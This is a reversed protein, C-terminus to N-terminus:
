HTSAAVRELQPAIPGAAALFERAIGLATAEDNAEISLMVVAAARRGTILKGTVQALKMGLKSTLFRGDVWYWSWVFRRTDGRAIRRLNTNLAAGDVVLMSGTDSIRRWKEDQVENSFSLLESGKRQDSYFVVHMDVNRDIGATYRQQKEAAPNQYTPQWSATPEIARWPARTDLMAIMATPKKPTVFNLYTAYAPGWAAVALVLAAAIAFSITPTSPAAARLRAWGPVQWDDPADRFKLGIWTLLLTIAAFFGWGYVLHDAGVAYQHNSYHAILVIGLARFGNAIIPIAASLVVFIARRQWGRYILDAFLFGYAVSAILFRLGACAEAVHFSGTPITIFVGDVYNPIGILDLGIAIFATTFDQMAPVLQEGSPVLFILYFFPFALAFYVRWGLVALLLCQLIGFMAFQQVEFVTATSAVLWAASGIVVALAPVLYTPAPRTQTFIVRREWILYAVIPVILFCHNYTASDSWVNVAAVAPEWFLAILGLIGLTLTVAAIRWAHQTEAREADQAVPRTVSEVITSM